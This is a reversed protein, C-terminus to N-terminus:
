GRITTTSHDQNAKIREVINAATFEALQQAEERTIATLERQLDPYGPRRISLQRPGSMVGHARKGTKLASVRIVRSVERRMRGSHVLPLLADRRGTRAIGEKRNMTSIARKSYNYKQSAGPRFHGPLFKNHWLEIAELMAPRTLKDGFDDKAKLIDAPM